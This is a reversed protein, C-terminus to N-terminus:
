QKLFDSHDSISYEKRERKRLEKNEALLQEVRTALDDREDQCKVLAEELKQVLNKHKSMTSLGCQLSPGALYITFGREERLKRESLM